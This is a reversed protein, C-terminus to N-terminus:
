FRLKYGLWPVWCQSFKSQSGDKYAMIREFELIADIHKKVETISPIVSSKWKRLVMLCAVALINVVIPKLRVPYSDINISLITQDVNAKMLVETVESLLRFAANWFSWINPCSWLMHSLTGVMGCGKWCSNEGGKYFKATFYFSKKLSGYSCALCTGCGIFLYLKNAPSKLCLKLGRECM